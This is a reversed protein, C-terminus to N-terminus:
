LKTWIVINLKLSLIKGIIYVFMHKEEKFYLYIQFSFIQIENNLVIEFVM